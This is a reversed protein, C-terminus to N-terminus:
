QLNKVSHPTFHPHIGDCLVSDACVGVVGAHFLTTPPTVSPQHNLRRNPSAFDCCRRLSVLLLLSALSMAIFM